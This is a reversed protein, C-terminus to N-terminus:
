NALLFLYFLYILRHRVLQATLKLSPASSPNIIHKIENQQVVSSHIIAKQARQRLNSHQNIIVTLSAKM